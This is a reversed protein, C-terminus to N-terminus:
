FYYGVNINFRMHWEADKSGEAFANTWEPGLWAHNKGWASDIYTYIPGAAVMCGVVNMYSDHFTEESKNFWSFDNYLKLYDIHQSKCPITYSLSSSVVQGKAAVKYIAGYAGMEITNQYQASDKPNKSFTLAQLKVEWNNMKHRFGISLASHNGMKNSVLNYLGGYMASFEISTNFNGDPSYAFKINGQNVEKNRGAVDYSYRNPSIASNNGFNLEEANKFFAAQVLLHDYRKMWKIGMDHDDELGIYYPLSFFWNNSNYPQLGFPVQCLGLQISSFDNIHYEIWGQKLMGGGFSNSYFRYEANFGLQKYTGTANLRFVDYGFDGGRKVQEPKWDSLNYNFRIAGGINVKPLQEEQAYGTFCITVLILLIYIKRNKM